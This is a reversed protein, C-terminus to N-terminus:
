RAPSGEPYRALGACDDLDFWEAKDSQWIHAIPKTPPSEDLSAVRLVARKSEPYLAILHSGCRPCFHRRKGPTTEIFSVIDEGNVWKFGEWPTLASAIFPSSHVKRCTECHCFAVPSVLGDATYRVAGCFCGGTIQNNSMSM